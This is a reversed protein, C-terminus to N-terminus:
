RRVHTSIHLRFPRHASCLSLVLSFGDACVLAHLLVTVRELLEGLFCELRAFGIGIPRLKNPGHCLAHLEDDLPFARANALSRERESM